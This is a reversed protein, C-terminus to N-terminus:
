MNKNVYEDEFEIDDPQIGRFLPDDNYLYDNAYEFEGLAEEDDEDCPELGNAKCYLCHWDYDCYLSEAALGIWNKMNNLEECQKEFPMQDWEEQTFDGRAIMRRAIEADKIPIDIPKRDHHPTLLKVTEEDEDINASASSNQETIIRLYIQNFKNLMLNRKM